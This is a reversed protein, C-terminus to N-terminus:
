SWEGRTRPGAPSNAPKSPGRLRRALSGLPNRSRKVVSPFPLVHPVHASSDGALPRGGILNVSASLLPRIAGMAEEYHLLSHVEWPRLLGHAARVALQQDARFAPLLGAFGSRAGAAGRRSYERLLSAAVLVVAIDRGIAHAGSNSRDGVVHAGAGLAQQHDVVLLAGGLVRLKRVEALDESGEAAPLARSPLGGGLTRGRYVM